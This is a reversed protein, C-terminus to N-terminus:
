DVIFPQQTSFNSNTFHIIYAGKTLNPLNLQLNATQQVETEFECKGAVNYIKLKTLENTIKTDPFRIMLKQGAHIPNPFLELQTIETENLSSTGNVMVTTTALESWCEGNGVKLYYAGAKANDANLITPNQESSSFPYVGTWEYIAATTSTSLHITQGTTYPGDNSITPTAPRVKVTVLVSDKASVCAGNFAYVVFYGSNSTHINEIIPTRVNSSFNNPGKWQYGTAGAVSSAELNITQGECNITNYLEGTHNIATPKNFVDCCNRVVLTHSYTTDKPNSSIVRLRYHNGVPLNAPISLTSTGTFTGSGEIALTDINKPTAFSGSADSLQIISTNGSNFIGRVSYNLTVDSGLCLTDSPTTLTIENDLLKIMWYDITGRSNQSKHASINSSSQGGLLIGNDSCRTLTYCYDGDNGGYTGDWIKTGDTNVKVVWFDFWGMKAQSKEGIANSGSSTAFLYTGDTNQLVEDVTEEGDGGFTKDWTVAGLSDIKVLWSDNSGRCSDTKEFSIPSRSGGALLFGGDLTQVAAKADDLGSGGYAKDWKKTGNETIRIAWYDAAGMNYDGRLYDSKEGGANSYTTGLLLYGGTTCKVIKRLFDSSNSGYTKDWVKIGTSTIKIIWYDTRLDLDRNEETKDGSIRSDSQGGLLFGGDPTEVISRLDEDRSGGFSADWQKVGNANIKIVWYDKGGNGTQSKDGSIDSDSYGGLLFGGDSTEIVTRCFDTYRGGYTKDWIKQGLKNTKVVWFDTFGTQGKKDETKDGSIGSGSNGVLLYNKDSTEIVKYGMDTDSGGFTADWLKNPRTQAILSNVTILLCFITITFKM